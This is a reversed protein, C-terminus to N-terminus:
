AAAVTPSSASADAALTPISPPPPASSSEATREMADLSNALLNALVQRLEGAIGTSAFSLAGRQEVQAGNARIKSQFRLNVVSEILTSASNSTAATFERYFGLTQRAHAIRQARRGPARGSSYLWPPFTQPPERSTSPTMMSELPNGIEYAISAAM